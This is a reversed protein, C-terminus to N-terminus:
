GGEGLCLCASGAAAGLLARLWACSTKREWGPQLQALMQIAVVLCLGMCQVNGDRHGSVFLLLYSQKSLLIICRKKLEKEVAQSSNKEEM